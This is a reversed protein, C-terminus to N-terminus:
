VGYGYGEIFLFVM